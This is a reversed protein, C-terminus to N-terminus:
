YRSLQLELCDSAIWFRSTLLSCTVLQSMLTDGERFDFGAHKFVLLSAFFCRPRQTHCFALCRAAPIGDDRRRGKNHSEQRM